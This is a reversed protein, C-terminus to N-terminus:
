AGSRAPSPVPQGRCCWGGSAASGTRGGGRACTSARRRRGETTSAGAERARRGAHPSATAGWLAESGPSVAARIMVCTNLTCYWGPGVSATAPSATHTRFAPRPPCSQSDDSAETTLLLGPTHDHRLLQAAEGGGGGRRACVQPALKHKQETPAVKNAPPSLLKGAVLAACRAAARMWRWRCAPPPPPPWLRATLLPLARPPDSVVDGAAGRLPAREPVAAHRASPERGAWASLCRVRERTLARL